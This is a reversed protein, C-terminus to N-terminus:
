PQDSQERGRTDDSAKQRTGEPYPSARDDHGHEILSEAEDVHGLRDAHVDRDAGREADDHRRRDTGVEGMARAARGVLVQDFAPPDPNESANEGAGDNRGVDGAAFQPRDEADDGEADCHFHHEGLRFPAQRVVHGAPEAQGAVSAEDAEGRHHDAYAAADDRVRDHGQM